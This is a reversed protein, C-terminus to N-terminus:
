GSLRRGCERVTSLVGFTDRCRCCAAVLQSPVAPNSAIVLEVGFSSSSDAGRVTFSERRHASM